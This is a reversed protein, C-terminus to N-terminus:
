ALESDRRLDDSDLLTTRDHGALTGPNRRQEDRHTEHTDRPQDDVVDGTALNRDHVLQPLQFMRMAMPRIAAAKLRAVRQFYAKHGHWPNRAAEVVLLAGLEYGVGSGCRRQCGALVVDLELRGPVPQLPEEGRTLVDRTARLVRDEATRLQRAFGAV